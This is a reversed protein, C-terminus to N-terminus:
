SNSLKIKFEITIDDGTKMAGLLATPPEINFDTMKLEVSGSIEISSDPLVRGELEMDIAKQVGAVTLEGSTQSKFTSQSLKASEFESLSYEINPYTKEDLAKRTKKDMISGKESKIKMVPISINCADIKLYGDESITATTSGNLEEVSSQWDHVNSTGKITLTFDPDITYEKIQDIAFSFSFFGVFGLLLIILTKM